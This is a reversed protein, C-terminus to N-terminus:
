KRAECAREGSGARLWERVAPSACNMATVRQEAEFAWEGAGQLSLWTAYYLGRGEESLDAALLPEPVTPTADSGFLNDDEEQVGNGDIVTLSYRGGPTVQVTPLVASCRDRINTVQALVRGQGADTFAISFPPAGGRWSVSLRRTGVSLLSREATLSPIDFALPENTKGGLNFCNTSVARSATATDGHSQDATISALKLFEFARGLLPPIASGPVIQDAEGSPSGGRRRIPILEHTAVMRITVTYSPGLVYIRDGAELSAKNDLGVPRGRRVVTIADSLHTTAPYVHEVYAVPISSPAEGARLPAASIASLLGIFAATVWARTM